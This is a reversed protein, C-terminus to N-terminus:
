MKNINKNWKNEQLNIPYKKGKTVWRSSPLFYVKEKLSVNMVTYPSIIWPNESFHRSFKACISLKIM